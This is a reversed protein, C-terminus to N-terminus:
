KVKNFLDNGPLKVQVVAGSDDKIILLPLSQEKNYFLIRNEPLPIKEYRNM